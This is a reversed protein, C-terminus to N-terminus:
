GETTRALLVLHFAQADLEPDRDTHLRPSVYAEVGLIPHVGQAKAEKYFEIVGHLVGHDTLALAPMRLQKAQELLPRIRSEGDLLSYETHVHCHVFPTTM